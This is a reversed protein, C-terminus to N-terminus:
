MDVYPMVYERWPFRLAGHEPRLAVHYGVRLVAVAVARAAPARLAHNAPSWPRAAQLVLEYASGAPAAGRAEARRARELPSPARAGHAAHSTPM